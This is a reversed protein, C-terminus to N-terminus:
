HCAPGNKRVISHNAHSPGTRSTTEVHEDKWPPFPCPLFMLSELGSCNTNPVIRWFGSTTRSNIRRPPTSTHKLTVRGTQTGWKLSSDDNIYIPNDTRFPMTTRISWCNLVISFHWKSFFDILFSLMKLLFLFYTM